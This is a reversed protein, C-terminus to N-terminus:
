GGRVCGEAAARRRDAPVCGRHGTARWTARGPEPLFDVPSHVAPLHRGVAPRRQQRMTRAAARAAGRTRDATTQESCFPLDHSPGKATHADHVAPLLFGSAPSRVDVDLLSHKAFKLPYTDPVHGAAATQFNASTGTCGGCGRHVPAPRRLPLATLDKPLGHRPDKSRTFVAPTATLRRNKATPQRCNATMRCRGFSMQSPPRRKRNTTANGVATRRLCVCCRLSGTYSTCPRSCFAAHCRARRHHVSCLRHMHPSPVARAIAGAAM